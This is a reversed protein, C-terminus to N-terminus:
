ALCIALSALSAHFIRTKCTFRSIELMQSFSVLCANIRSLVLRSGFIEQLVQLFEREQRVGISALRFELLCTFRCFRLLKM